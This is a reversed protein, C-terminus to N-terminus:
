ATALPDQIGPCIMRTMRSNSTQNAIRWILQEVGQFGIDYFDVEASLALAGTAKVSSKERAAAMVQIDIGGHKAEHRAIASKVIGLQDTDALCLATPRPNLSLLQELLAAAAETAHFNPQRSADTLLQAQMGLLSAADLFAYACSRYWCHTFETSLFAVHQHGASQLRRAAAGAIAFIDPMVQDGWSREHRSGALWVCPVRGPSGQEPVAASDGHLLLGVCGHQRVREELQLHDAIFEYVFECGHALSGESVGRLLEMFGLKETGNSDGVVFFGLTGIAPKEPVPRPGPRRDSPVYGVESM